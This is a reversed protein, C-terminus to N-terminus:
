LPHLGGQACEHTDGSLLMGCRLCKTMERAVHRLGRVARMATTDNQEEFQTALCCGGKEAGTEGASRWM